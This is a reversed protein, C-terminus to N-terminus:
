LQAGRELWLVGKVVCDPVAKEKVLEKNMTLHSYFIGMKELIALLKGHPM